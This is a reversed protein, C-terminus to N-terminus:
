LCFVLLLVLAVTGLCVAGAIFGAVFEKRSKEKIIIRKKKMDM